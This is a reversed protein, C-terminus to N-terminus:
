MVSLNVYSKYGGKVRDYVEEDDSDYVKVFESSKPHVHEGEAQRKERNEYVEKLVIMNNKLSALQKQDVSFGYDINQKHLFNILEENKHLLLRGGRRSNAIRFAVNLVLKGIEQGHHANVFEFQADRIVAITEVEEIIKRGKV